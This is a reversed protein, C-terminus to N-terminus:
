VIISENISFMLELKKDFISNKLNIFEKLMSSNMDENFNINEIFEYLDKLQHNCVSFFRVDFKQIYNIL